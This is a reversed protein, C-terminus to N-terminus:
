ENRCESKLSFVYDGLEDAWFEGNFSWFYQKDTRKLNKIDGRSRFGYSRKTNYISDKKRALIELKIYSMGEFSKELDSTFQIITKRVYAGILDRQLILSQKLNTLFIKRLRTNRMGKITKIEHRGRNFSDLLEVYAADRLLYDLYNNLLENGSAKGNKKSKSMLYYYKYNKGYKRVLKKVSLSDQHYKKYFNDVVNRADDFLCLEMYTLSELVDVEPNFVYDIMPANYTVLKGLTRNYDRMYFSNWAEEFLVEPWIYSDKPLDLYMSNADVYNKAAFDSRPIGVICYDKNISLQRLRNRNSTSSIADNSIDICRTFAAKASKTKGLVAFTSGELLLAFPKASHSAPITGNLTKLVEKYRGLRFYKKALIYRVMPAQSKRLVSVPMVDFQKVGIHTIVEDILADIRKAKTGSTRFLYEKLYATATFHLGDNILKQAVSPYSDIDGRNSRLVKYADEIQAKGAISFLLLFAFIMKNIKM